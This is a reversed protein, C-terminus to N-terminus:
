MQLKTLFETCIDKMRVEVNEKKKADLVDSMWEFHNCKKCKLYPIEFNHETNSIKLKMKGNCNPFSCPTVKWPCANILHRLSSCGFCSGPAHPSTKSSLYAEDFWMFYGCGLKSCTMFKGGFSQPQESVLLKRVGNCPPIRCRTYVWPCHIGIHGKRDCMQCTLHSNSSGEGVEM